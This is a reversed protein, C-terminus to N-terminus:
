RPAPADDHGPEEAQPRAKSKRSSTAAVKTLGEEDLSALSADMADTVISVVGSIEPVIVAKYFSTGKMVESRGRETVAMPKAIALLHQKQEPTMFMPRATVSKGRAALREDLVSLRTVFHALASAVITDSLWPKVELLGKAFRDYAEQADATVPPTSGEKPLSDVAKAAALEALAYAYQLGFEMQEASKGQGYRQEFIAAQEKTFSGKELFIQALPMADNQMSRVWARLKTAAEPGVFASVETHMMRLQHDLVQESVAGHKLRIHHLTAGIREGVSAVAEWSRPCPYAADGRPNPAHFLDPNQKLFASVGGDGAVSKHKIQSRAVWNDVDDEVYCVKLRTRLAASPKSTYTGDAAGLNGTLGVYTHEGLDLGRFRGEEAFALLINQISPSANLADDFLVVSLGAEKCLALRLTPAHGTYSVDGETEAKRVLPLGVVGSLSVEGSMEVSNFLFDNPGVKEDEAPNLLFRMGLGEAIQQAAVKFATTKGHGPFGMLMTSKVKRQKFFFGDNIEAIMAEIKSDLDPNRGYFKQLMDMKITEIMVELPIQPLDTKVANKIAQQVASM